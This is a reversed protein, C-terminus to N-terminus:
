PRDLRSVRVVETVAHARLNLDWDECGPLFLVEDFGGLSEFVDRRFFRAAEVGDQGVYFSREFARVKAWYGQGVTREPVIVAGAGATIAESM